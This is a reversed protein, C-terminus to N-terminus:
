RPRTDSGIPRAEVVLRDPTATLRVELSGLALTVHPRPAVVQPVDIDLPAVGGAVVVSTIPHRREIASIVAEPVSPDAVVLLDISGVGAERLVALVSASGLPSRGGVGGVVVVDTAADHWRVVGTLLGSRLPAPAQAATVAGVVSATALALGARRVWQLSSTRQRVVAATALGAALGLLHPARLQGLPARSAREAVDTLWGLMLRTPLHVVEAVVGGALGAVVGGTLGWIMVVGAIPVALVNAPLSAVPLPGFTALLVPAVGLQAALTVGLSERLLAPGPLVDALRPALLLIAAAASVSLQFGVSRVLLPDVLLLGTVALALVRVRSIPSGVTATMVALAAMAAARLVSPEFRTTLGFISIVLLTAGLRPWLRLRRLVPAALTLLFAVNQGSVALLHTLGAGLFDDALEVPQGRDDGFVLGTYLSRELHTLPAGGTTLTRRLWNALRAHVPGADWAEVAYVRLRGSVHRAVLWPAGDPTPQVEGRVTVREGALRPRLAAASAGDARLELRRGGLRADVRVGGFTPVPDTLLTVQSAVSQVVVGDLGALSRGALSSALAAVGLCLLVPRRLAFGAAVVLSAALLPIASPRTAGWAACVALLM